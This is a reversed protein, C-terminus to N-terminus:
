PLEKIRINRWYIGHGHGCWHIRGTTNHLGPRRVGDYSEDTPYASVDADVITTGNLVVTIRPGNATVEVANWEGARKLYSQGNVRLAPGVVGYIAGTYHVNALRNSGNYAPGYDDLLQIEMGERSCWGNPKTRIGLGNNADQPLKVDFRITFNAYDRDTWLNRAGSEGIGDRQRCTLYGEPTVGYTDTAGEWGSLDRGNFLPVFGAEDGGGLLACGALAAACAACALGKAAAKMRMTKLDREPLNEFRELGIVLYCIM